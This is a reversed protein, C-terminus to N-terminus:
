RIYPDSLQQYHERITGICNYSLYLLGGFRNSMRLSRYQLAVKCVWTLLERSWPGKYIEPHGKQTHSRLLVPVQRIKLVAGGTQLWREFRRM